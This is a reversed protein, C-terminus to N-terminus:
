ASGRAAAPDTEPNLLNSNVQMLCGGQPAKRYKITARISQPFPLQPAPFNVLPSWVHIGSFEAVAIDHGGFTLCANGLSGSEHTVVM